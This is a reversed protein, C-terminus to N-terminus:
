SSNPKGQTHESDPVTRPVLRRFVRQLIPTPAQERIRPSPQVGEARGHAAPLPWSLETTPDESAAIHDVGALVADIPAHLRELAWGAWDDAAAEKKIRTQGTEPMIIHGAEHALVYYATWSAFSSSPSTSLFAPDYFICNCLPERCVEALANGSVNPDKTPVLEFQDLTWGAQVVVADLISLPTEVPHSAYAGTGEALYCLDITQASLAHFYIGFFLALILSQRMSMVPWRLLNALCKRESRDYVSDGCKITKEDILTGPCVKTQGEPFVITDKPRNDAPSSNGTSGQHASYAEPPDGVNSRQENFEIRALKGREFTLEKKIHNPFEALLTLQESTLRLITGYYSVNSRLTVMDARLLTAGSVCVLILLLPPRM